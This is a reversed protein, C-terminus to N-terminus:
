RSRLAREFQDVPLVPLLLERLEQRRPHDPNSATFCVFDTVIAAQQEYGFALFVPADDAESFYPDAFRLAELVARWPSYGSRERNQWQWVHTLEHALILTTPFRMREPYALAMDSAYLAYDFQMSNWLAFAQPPQREARTEARQRVCARDTGTLITVEKPLPRKPPVIGPAMAVRAKSVDIEDGFLDKAFAAESPTLPRGCAALAILALCLLIRKM